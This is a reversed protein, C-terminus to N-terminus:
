FLLLLLTLRCNRSLPFTWHVTKRNVSINALQVSPPLLVTFADRENEVLERKREAFDDDNALRITIISHM